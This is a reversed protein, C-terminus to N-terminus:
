WRSASSVPIPRESEIQRAREPLQEPWLGRGDPGFLGKYEEGHEYWRYEPDRILELWVPDTLNKFRDAYRDIWAVVKPDHIIDESHHHGEPILHEDV